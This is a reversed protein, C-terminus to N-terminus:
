PAPRRNDVGRLRAAPRRGAPAGPEGFSIEVAGLVAHGTVRIFPAGGLHASLPSPLCEVSGLVGSARQEVEAGAPLTIAIHGFVARVHIETVGAGYSADRLDLEVNGFVASVDLRRPVVSMSHHELNALIAFRRDHSPVVEAVGRAGPRSVAPRAPRSAPALDHLLAELDERSPARFVAGVREEFQELSLRDDAFAASLLATAREREEETPAGRM